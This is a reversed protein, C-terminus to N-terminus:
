KLIVLKEIKEVINGNPARIKIKYIYVGKGINDGYDDKGDWYIPSSLFSSTIAQSEITKVIKGTITFIQLIVDLPTNPQNHNFYFATQTTFPNPYNLVHDVVLESSEAVIFEITSEASNNCVDWCKVTMTHLGPELDNIEYEVLGSNYSDLDAQYYDNMVIAHSTKNDIIATIDHGIGNGVTNIGLSDKLVAILKPSQNTISGNVFNQDNLFIKISPGTADCTGSSSTGGILVKEYGHADINSNNDSYYSIKGYDIVYSIDRPIYFSFIFYGNSVTAKGKYIINNQLKFSFTSGGDNALTYQVRKKDYITPYVIGNFDAQVTGNNEIHGKITVLQLAKLTDTFAAVPYGNISDSVVDIKPYAPKLAPDGLLSFNRKNTESTSGTNNKAYRIIDGFALQEGQNNSAFLFNFIQQNLLYNQQAYVLRTTSFLAISGGQSNLFISEGATTRSYDDWRSFECTATIFLPLRNFNTWSNIDSVGLVFEHALNVENGHGTYNIIISGKNVRNNIATNVDPYRTGNPTSIQRYSDLYIKEINYVPQATDVKNAIADAQSIHMNGDEDDAIFTIINKWDGYSRSIVYNKIKSVVGAAETGNKVTFRGIGIDLTGTSGGEGDELMGFFDDTVFSSTPTFSNDSQYTLIYNSNGSISSKNNYSGDGFLLLYRPMHLSDTGARDFLMKMLNRISAPDPIGGSFENYVQEPEVVEVTLDDIARHLEAIEDAYQRFSPHTLIVMDINNLAHLDQNTVDTIALPSLFSSGDFVVFERLSDTAVRFKLVSGAYTANILRPRVSDTIDLVKSNVTANEVSFESVNGAAVTRTDRFHFQGSNFKLRCRANLCLYNLWGEATSNPKNFSVNITISPSSSNFTFTGVIDTAYTATNVFQVTGGQLTGITSNNAKFTWTNQESSRTMVNAFLNVPETGSIDPLYFNYDYSLLVNFNEGVFIQGSKILNTQDSEYYSYNDYQTVQHTYPLTSQEESEILMPGSSGETIFYYSFDSYPHLKHRFTGSLNYYKWRVPGHAYFYIYDGDNFIGDGGKEIYVPNEILDDASPLNNMVPIQRGGNGYIKVNEPVTFGMAIIQSYTIKYIGSQVIKMKKWTGTSLVSNGAYQKKTVPTKPVLTYEISFTVLREYGETGSKNRVPVVSFDVFPKTRESCVTWKVIFESTIENHNRLVSLQESSVDEVTLATFHLSNVTFGEPIKIKEFYYPLNTISQFDCGKFYLFENKEGNIEDNINNLWEIKRNIVQSIVNDSFFIAILLTTIYIPKM